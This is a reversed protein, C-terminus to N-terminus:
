NKAKDQQKRLVERQGGYKDERGGVGEERGGRRQLRIM